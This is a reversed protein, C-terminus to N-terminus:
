STSGYPILGALMRGYVRALEFDVFRDHDLHDPSYCAIGIPLLWAQALYRAHAMQLRDTTHRIVWLCMIANPIAAAFAVGVLGFHPCLM